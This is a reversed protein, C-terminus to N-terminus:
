LAISPSRLHRLIPSNPLKAFIMIERLRLKRPLQAHLLRLIKAIFLPIAVQRRINENPEGIEIVGRGVINEASCVIRRGRLWLGRRRLADFPRGTM